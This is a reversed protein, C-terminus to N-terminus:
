VCKTVDMDVLLANMLIQFLGFIVEAFYYSIVFHVMATINTLIWGIVMMVPVCIHHRHILVCNTVVTM